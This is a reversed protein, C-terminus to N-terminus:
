FQSAFVGVGVGFAIAGVIGGGVIGAVALAAGLIKLLLSGGDVEQMEFESMPALGMKNLELTRM